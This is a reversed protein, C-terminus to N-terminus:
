CIKEAHRKYTKGEEDIITVKRAREEPMYNGVHANHLCELLHHQIINSELSRIYENGCHPLWSNLQCSAPWVIEVPNEGVLSVLLINLIFAHHGGVGYGFPMVCANSIDLGSSAWLGDIPMSGQFFMTGTQSGTHMLIVENLNLGERNSLAKGLAGDYVNENHNMFLVIRDGSARWKQIALTLQQRFLILPCTLDKKEMVFYRRQQQFSTGSNVKKNKCPNYATILHTNYGDLGRFLIWSWHGLGEKDKGVKKIYGTADGFCVAGTGGEQVQGAYQGEHIKHTTVATCAIERQFMQKFDNKNERHWLSLRHECYMLCDIGLDEKIDLARAIKNNRSIKNNFGNANECILWFTGEQKSNPAIEQIQLLGKDVAEMMRKHEESGTATNDQGKGGDAEMDQKLEEIITEMKDDQLM